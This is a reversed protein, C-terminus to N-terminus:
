FGHGGAINANPAAAKPHLSLVNAIVPRVTPPLSLKAIEAKLDTIAAHADPTLFFDYVKDALTMIDTIHKKQQDSKFFVKSIKDLCQMLATLTDIQRTLITPYWQILEARGSQAIQKTLQTKLIDRFFATATKDKSKDSRPHTAVYSDYETKCQLQQVLKAELKKSLESKTDEIGMYNIYLLVLKKKTDDCALAVEIEAKQEHRTTWPRRKESYGFTNPIDRQVAVAPAQPPSPLIGISEQFVSIQTSLQRCSCEMIQASNIKKAGDLQHLAANLEKDRQVFIITKKVLKAIIAPSFHDFLSLLEKSNCAFVIIQGEELLEATIKAAIDAPENSDLANSDPTMDDGLFV